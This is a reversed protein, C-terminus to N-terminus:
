SQDDDNQEAMEASVAIIAVVLGSVMTGVPISQLFAGAIIAILGIIFLIANM